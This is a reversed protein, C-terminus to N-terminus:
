RSEPPLPAASAASSAARRRAAAEDGGVEVAVRALRRDAQRQRDGLAVEAGQMGAAQAALPDAFPRAAVPRHDGALPQHEARQRELVTGPRLRRGLATVAASSSPM